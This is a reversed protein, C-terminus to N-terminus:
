FNQKDNTTVNISSYDYIQSQQILSPDSFTTKTIKEEVFVRKEANRLRHRRKQKM